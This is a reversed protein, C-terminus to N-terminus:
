KTVDNGNEHRKRFAAVRLKNGCIEMSCWARTGSKSTDLFFLVCDPNQCKRIRGADQTTLLLAFALAIPRSLDDPETVAWNHRLQLSKEVASLTFTTRPFALLRNTEAIAARDSYIHKHQHLNELAAKLVRRYECARTLAKQLQPQSLARKADKLARSSLMEAAAMWDLLDDPKELLDVKQGDQVIETNAFDIAPDNGLWLFKGSKGSDKM